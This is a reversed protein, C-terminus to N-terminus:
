AVWRERITRIKGQADLTVEFINDHCAYPPQVVDYAHAMCDDIHRVLEFKDVRAYTGPGTSLALEAVVGAPLPYTAPEGEVRHIWGEATCDPKVSVAEVDRGRRASVQVLRVGPRFTPPRSCDRGTGDYAGEREFGSAPGGTPTASNSPVHGAADGSSGCASLTTGLVVLVAIAGFCHRTSHM